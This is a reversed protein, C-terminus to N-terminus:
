RTKPENKKGERLINMRSVLLPGLLSSEYIWMQKNM